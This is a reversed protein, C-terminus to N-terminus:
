KIRNVAARIDRHGTSFNLVTGANGASQWASSAKYDAEVAFSITEFSSFRIFFCDCALTVSRM